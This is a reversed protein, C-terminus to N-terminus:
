KNWSYCADGICPGSEKVSWPCNRVTFLINGQCHSDGTEGRYVDFWHVVNDFVFSCFYDTTDSTIRINFSYVEGYAIVRAGIDTGKDKCHVQLDQHKELNNTIEVNAGFLQGVYAEVKETELERAWTAASMLMIVTLILQQASRADM